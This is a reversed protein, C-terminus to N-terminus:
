IKGVGQDVVDRSAKPSISFMVLQYQVLFHRIGNGGEQKWGKLPDLNTCRAIVPITVSKSFIIKFNCGIQDLDSRSKKVVADKSLVTLVM